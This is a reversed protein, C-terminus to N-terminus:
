IGIALLFVFFPRMGVSKLFRRDIDIHYNTNLRDWYHSCLYWSGINYPVTM